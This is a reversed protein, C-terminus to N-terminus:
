RFYKPFQQISLRLEKILASLEFITKQLETIFARHEESYFLLDNDRLPTPFPKPKSSRPTSRSRM